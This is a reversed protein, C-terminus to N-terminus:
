RKSQYLVKCAAMSSLKKKRADQTHQWMVCIIESSHVCMDQWLMFGSWNQRGGVNWWGPTCLGTRLKTNWATKESMAISARAERCKEFAQFCVCMDICRWFEKGPWAAVEQKKSVKAKFFISSAACYKVHIPAHARLCCATCVHRQLGAFIV